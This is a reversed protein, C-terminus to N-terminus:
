GRQRPPHRPSKTQPLPRDNWRCLRDYFERSTEDATRTCEGLFKTRKELRASGEPTQKERELLALLDALKVELMAAAQRAEGPSTYQLTAENGERTKKRSRDM